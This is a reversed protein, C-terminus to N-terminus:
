NSLWRGSGTTGANLQSPTRWSKGTAKVIASKPGDFGEERGSYGIPHRALVVVRVCLEDGLTHGVDDCREKAAYGSRSGYGARHGVDVISPACGNSTHHM